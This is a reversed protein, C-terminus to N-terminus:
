SSQSPPCFSRSNNVLNSLEILIRYKYNEDQEGHSQFWERLIDFDNQNIGKMFNIIKETIAQYYLVEGEKHKKLQERRTMDCMNQFRTVIDVQVYEYKSMKLSEVITGLYTYIDDFKM